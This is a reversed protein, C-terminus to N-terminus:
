NGLLVPFCDVSLSKTNILLGYRVSNRLSNGNQVAFKSSIHTTKIIFATKVSEIPSIWHFKRCLVVIFNRRLDRCEGMFASPISTLFLKQSRVPVGGHDTDQMERMLGEM